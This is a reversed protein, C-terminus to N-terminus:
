TTGKANLKQREEHKAQEAILYALQARYTPGANLVSVGVGCPLLYYGLFGEAGFGRRKCAAEFQAKTMDRAM